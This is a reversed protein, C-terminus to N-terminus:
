PRPDGGRFEFGFFELAFEGRHQLVIHVSDYPDLQQLSFDIGPRDHGLAQVGMDEGNISVSTTGTTERYQGRIYIHLSRHEPMIRQRMLRFKLSSQSGDCWTLAPEGEGWGMAMLGAAAIAAGSLGQGSFTPTADITVLQRLKTYIGARISAEGASAWAPVSLDFPPEERELYRRALKRNSGQFHKRIKQVTTNNLFYREGAGDQAIASLAVDVLRELESREVGLQRLQDITFASVADLGPNGSQDQRVFDVDATLGFLDLFDAVVDGQVLASREFVRVKIDAGGMGRQWRRALRYYNRSAPYRGRRQQWLKLILRQSQFMTIPCTNALRKIEESFGSQVIEAQERLYMVVRTDFGRFARALVKIQAAQYFNLGEWSLLAQEFGEARAARLEDTLRQLAQGSLNSFLEAHGNNPGLYSQPVYVGRASLWERNLALHSQIATSGAKDTGIHLTLRM